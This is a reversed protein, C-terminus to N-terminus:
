SRRTPRIRSASLAITTAIDSIASLSRTLRIKMLETEVIEQIEEVSVARRYYKCTTDGDGAIKLVMVGSLRYVPKVEQNALSIAMSIKSVDFDVEAGNRKIVKM